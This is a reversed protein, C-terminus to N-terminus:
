EHKELLAFVGAYTLLEHDYSELTYLVRVLWDVIDEKRRPRIGRTDAVGEMLDTKKVVLACPKYVKALKLTLPRLAACDADKADDMEETEGAMDHFARDILKTLKRGEEDTTAKKLEKSAKGKSSLSKNAGEAVQKKKEKRAAIRTRMNEMAHDDGFASSLAKSASKRGSSGVMSEPGPHGSGM